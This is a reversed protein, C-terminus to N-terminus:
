LQNNMTNKLLEEVANYGLKKLRYNRAAVEVVIALNRGPMVPLTLKPVDVGIISTTI